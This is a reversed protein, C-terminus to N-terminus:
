LTARTVAEIEGTSNNQILGLVEWHQPDFDKPLVVMSSGSGTSSLSEDQLRRVIQVHSLTHGANEGGTVKNQAEKQLIAILLHSGRAANTTHYQVTLAERDRHAKLELSASEKADLQETITRRIISENSGVFEARGNVILQPTYIQSVHLWQGYQMQRKSFDASSFVDKWGQRDWYDVHYALVYIEKGAAESQIRSLLADAPPCSSCGESTFLELVAFGNGSSKMTEPKASVRHSIFAPLILATFISCIILGWIKFTRM